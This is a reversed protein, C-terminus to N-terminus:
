FVERKDNMVFGAIGIQHSPGAPLMVPEDPIWYTLM